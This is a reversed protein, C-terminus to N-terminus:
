ALNRLRLINIKLLEIQINQTIKSVQFNITLSIIINHLTTTQFALTDHVYNKLMYSQNEQGNTKLSKSHKKCGRFKKVLQCTEKFGLEKIGM